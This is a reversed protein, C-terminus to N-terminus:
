AAQVNRAALPLAVRFTTGTEWYSEVIVKGGHAEAIGRVLVLGLGWGKQGGSLASATRSYPVFLAGQDTSSIPNGENHVEILVRGAEKRLTITVPRHVVGYKVANSALNELIRRLGDYSWCGEIAQDARLIFRDGHIASLEEITDRAVQALDLTGFQLALKEGAGIRGADLLDRIMQDARDM